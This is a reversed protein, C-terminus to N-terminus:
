ASSPPPCSVAGSSSSSPIQVSTMSRTKTSSTDLEILKTSLWSCASIPDTTVADFSSDDFPLTPDANLDHVVFSSAAENAELETENMGLAVLRAPPSRFHSIWSSMLDLVAVEAEASGDIGLEGYLAGVAAIATDDIHTVLRPIDYFGTDSLEDSRSFFGPPFPSGSDTM